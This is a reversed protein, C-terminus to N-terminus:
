TMGFSDLVSQQQAALENSLSAAPAPGPGLAEGKIDFSPAANSPAKDTYGSEDCTGVEEFRGDLSEKYLATEGDAFSAALLSGTVSWSLCEVKGAVAMKCLQRWPQGEVEQAWVVISKDWGGSALVGSSDPRWAVDRVWDSHAPPLHPSEQTWIDGECKWVCVSGDCGGTALRMTSALLGDRYHAPSWSVAQAGGGHAQFVARRWQQDMASHTLISVTGDSSACALKLGYEWPCFEIANVSAGHSSDSYAVQWQSNIEKWVIVKMDYGCTALLSGFKPHAWAVKWVPGEHGKLQGVPIQQGDTIDWVHVAGEATAAAVRKGYYDLQVDHLALTGTDLSGQMQGSMAWFGWPAPSWPPTPSGGPRPLVV